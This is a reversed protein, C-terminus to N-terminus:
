SRRAAPSGRTRPACAAQASDPRDHRQERPRRRAAAPGGRARAAVAPRPLCRRPASGLAPVGIRRLRPTRGRAHRACRRAGSTPRRVRAVVGARVDNSPGRRTDCRGCRSGRDHGRVVGRWSGCGPRSCRAAVGPRRRPPRTRVADSAARVTARTHAEATRAALLVPDCESGADADGGGPSPWCRPRFRLPPGLGLGVWCCPPPAPSCRATTDLAHRVRHRLLIATFAATISVTSPSKKQPRGVDACPASDCSRM